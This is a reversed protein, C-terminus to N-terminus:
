PLLCVFPAPWGVPSDSEEGQIGKLKNESKGLEGVHGNERKKKQFIM